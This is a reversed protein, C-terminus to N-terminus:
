GRTPEPTDAGGANESLRGPQARVAGSDRLEEESGQIPYMQLITKVM